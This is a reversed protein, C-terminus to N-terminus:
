DVLGSLDMNDDSGEDQGEDEGSNDPPALQNPIDICALDSLKGIVEPKVRNVELDRNTYKMYLSDRM